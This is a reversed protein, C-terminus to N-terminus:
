YCKRCKLRETTTEEIDDNKSNSLDKTKELTEVKNVLVKIQDKMIEKDNICRELANELEFMNKKLVTLEKLDDKLKYFEETLIKVTMKKPATIKILRFYRTKNKNQFKSRVERSRSM